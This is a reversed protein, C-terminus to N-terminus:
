ELVFVAGFAAAVSFVVDDHEVHEPQEVGVTQLRRDESGEVESRLLTAPGLRRPMEGRHLFNTFTCKMWTECFAFVPGMGTEIM